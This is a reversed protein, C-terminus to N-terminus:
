ALTCAYEYSPEVVEGDEDIAKTIEFVSLISAIAMWVSSYAMFRGPCIRRIANAKHHAETRTM